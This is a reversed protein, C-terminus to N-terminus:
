VTEQIPKATFGSKILTNLERFNESVAKKLNNKLYPKMIIGFRTFDAFVEVDVKTIGEKIEKLIFYNSLRKTFPMDTTTEGYVLQGDTVKKTLTVQNIEKNNIICKHKLGARNVKNKEYELKDVGKVWLLRYDFNSLIEYLDLAPMNLQFTEKILSHKPVDSPFPDIEPL